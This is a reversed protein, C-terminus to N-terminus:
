RAAIIACLRDVDRKVQAAGEDNALAFHKQASPPADIWEVRYRIPLEIVLGRRVLGRIARRASSYISDPVPWGHIRECLDLVSAHGHELETLLRRQLRGLGRSM